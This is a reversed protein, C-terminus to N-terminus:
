LELRRWATRALASVVAPSLGLQRALEKKTKGELLGLLILRERSGPAYRERVARSLDGADPAGEETFEAVPPEWRSVQRLHSYMANRICVSALAPFPHEGDWCEAARWLGIMGCQLLDPDRSLDGFRAAIATVLGRHAQILAEIEAQSRPTTM